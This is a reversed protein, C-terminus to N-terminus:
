STVLHVCPPQDSFGALQCAHMCTATRASARAGEKGFLCPLPSGTGPGMSPAVQWGACPKCTLLLVVHSLVSQQRTNRPGQGTGGVWRQMGVGGGKGVWREMKKVM